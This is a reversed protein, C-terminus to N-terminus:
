RTVLGSFPNRSSGLPTRTLDKALTQRLRRRVSSAVHDLVLQHFGTAAAFDWTADPHGRFFATIKSGFHAALSPPRDPSAPFPDRSSAASATRRDSPPPNAAAGAEAPSWPIEDPFDAAEVLELEPIKHGALRSEVYIRLHGRDAMILHHARM